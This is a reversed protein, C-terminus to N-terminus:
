KEFYKSVAEQLRTLGGHLVARPCAVNMRQFGKGEPGFMPGDNLGLRANRIMFHRLAEPSLGLESCDLWVLYTAEPQVVKIQPVHSSLVETVLNVNGAIYTMLQGLWEDGHNYAAETAIFGFINGAGVHVDDLMKDYIQRMRANPIVLYATSLGALNFTKSASMCTITIGALEDSLSAVPTHHYSPLVLDSHIEDSVLLMNHQLCLEGIRALAERPWVNGTPNHPNCLILMRTHESIKAKLDDFDITYRGQSYKLPNTVLKRHHNTVASFFPFYVPTQVIVEDGPRTFAMMLLNLAPVVGPSFSIWERKINWNNRRLNWQVIAEYFSDPIHTYGLLGQRLRQELAQIIFEPTRFDMDAVWMPLVLESGFIKERFDYKISNTGQRNIVEDFNYHM